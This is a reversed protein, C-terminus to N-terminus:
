GPRGPQLASNLSLKEKLEVVMSLCFFGKFSKM